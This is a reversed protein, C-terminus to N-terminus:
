CLIDLEIVFEQTIAPWSFYGTIWWDGEKTHSAFPHVPPTIKFLISRFRENPLVQKKARLKEDRARWTLSLHSEHHSRDRSSRKKKRRGTRSKISM